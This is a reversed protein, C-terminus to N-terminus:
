WLCDRIDLWHVLSDVATAFGSPTRSAAMTPLRRWTTERVHGGLAPDKLGANPRTLLCHLPGLIATSAFPAPVM